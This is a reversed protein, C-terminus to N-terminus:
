PVCSSRMKTSKSWTLSALRPMPGCAIRSLRALCFATTGAPMMWVSPGRMGNRTVPANSPTSVTLFVGTAEALPVVKRSPSMAVTVRPKM